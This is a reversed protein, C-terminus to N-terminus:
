APKLFVDVAFGMVARGWRCQADHWARKRALMAAVDVDDPHARAHAEHHAHITDEFRDGGARTAVLADMSVFGGRHPGGVALILDFTAPDFALDDLDSRLWTARHAPVRGAAAEPALALAAESIDVGTTIAELREGCRLRVEAQGCGVDLVALGRALDLPELLRDIEDARVPCWVDLGRDHAIDARSV